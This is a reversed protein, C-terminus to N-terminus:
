PIIALADICVNSSQEITGSPVLLEIHPTAPAGVLALGDPPTDYCKTNFSAWPITATFTTVPACYDTGAATATQGVTVILRAGTAPLSSLKIAIGTGGLQVPNPNGQPNAAVAPGLNIGLGIGYYTYLPPNDPTTTGALCAASTSACFTTFPGTDGFAYVAGTHGAITCQGGPCM